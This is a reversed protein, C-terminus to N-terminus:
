RPAEALVRGKWVHNVIEADARAWGGLDDVGYPHPLPRLRPNAADLAPYISRFGHRVFARQAEESFLFKM